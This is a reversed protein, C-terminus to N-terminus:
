KHVEEHVKKGTVPDFLVDVKRFKDDWGLLQYCNEETVIFKRVTYKQEKLHKQFEAQDQWKDKSELTCPKAFAVASVASCILLSFLNLKTMFSEQDIM